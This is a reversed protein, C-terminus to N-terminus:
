IVFLLVFYEPDFPLRCESFNIPESNRLAHLKKTKNTDNWLVLIKLKGCKLPTTPERITYHQGANWERCM